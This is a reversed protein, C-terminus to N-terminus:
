ILEHRRFVQLLSPLYRQALTLNAFGIWGIEATPHTPGDLSSGDLSCLIVGSQQAILWTALDYPHACLITTKRHARWHVNLASRLDVVLRLQGTMLAYLQGGTSLHQDEFVQTETKVLTKEPDANQPAPQTLVSPSYLFEEEIASILAKGRPFLNVFSIFGHHLDSAADTQLRLISQEGTFLNQRVGASLTHASAWFTDAYVQKPTPLETQLAFFIDSLRTDDGREPAIGTLIWGSSKKHMLLRTGDVPDLLVRFQPQGKGFSIAEGREFEGVLLFAPVENQHAELFHLLASEAVVDIGYITDAATLSAVQSIEGHSREELATCVLGRAYDHARWLLCALPEAPHNKEIM